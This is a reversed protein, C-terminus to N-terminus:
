QCDPDNYECGAPAECKGDRPYAIAICAVGCDAPDTYECGPAAECKGNAPYAIEICAVGGGGDPPSPPEATPGCDPDIVYDCASEAVCKGDPIGAIAPCAIQRCDPDRIFDAYSQPECKGDGSSGSDPPECGGGAPPTVPTVPSGGACDPDNLVSCPGLLECVGDPLLAIAPCVIPEGCDDGDGQPCWPDCEGDAYWGHEACPDSVAPSTSTGDAGSAAGSSGSNRGSAVRSRLEAEAQTKLDPTALDSGAGDNACGIATLLLPAFLRFHTRM